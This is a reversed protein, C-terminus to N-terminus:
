EWNGANNNPATISGVMLGEYRGTSSKEYNLNIILQNNLGKLLDDFPMSAEFLPVHVGSVEKIVAKLLIPKGGSFPITKISDIVFNTRKLLTDRVAIKVSDRKVLHRAVAVSDDMSGIQKIITIEGNNYFDILSDLNGNFKGFKSKYAVELTRIDKLRQAGVYQREKLAQQFEIPEEISRWILYIVGIIIVPLIVITFIKKM